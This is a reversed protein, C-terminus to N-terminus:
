WNVQNLSNELDQGALHVYQMTTEIKQHGALKQVVTPSLKKCLHTIGSHRAYSFSLPRERRIGALAFVKKLFKQVNVESRDFFPANDDRWYARLLREPKSMDEKPLRHLKHLPLRVDRETKQQGKVLVLGDTTEQIHERSLSIADSVRLLTYYAFLFLDRYFNLHRTEPNFQLRELREIEVETLIDKDVPKKKARFDEYPNPKTNLGRKIAQVIYKRLIQHEKHIYNDHHQHENRLYQDFGVIFSYSIADFAVPGGNYRDLREAVRVKRKYTGDTRAKSKDLDIQQRLFASFTSPTDKKTVGGRNTHSDSRLLNFDPITFPRGFRTRFNQEFEELEAQRARVKLQATMNRKIQGKNEDWQEPPIRVGTTFYKRLGNQYTQIQVLGLGGKLQRKRNYVVKYTVMTISVNSKTLLFGAHIGSSLPYCLPLM